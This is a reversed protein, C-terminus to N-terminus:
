GAPPGGRRGGGGRGGGRPPAEPVDNLGGGGGGRQGAGGAPLGPLFRPPHPTREGRARGHGHGGPNRRPLGPPAVGAPKPRAGGAAARAPGAEARAPQQDMMLGAGAGGLSVLVGLLFGLFFATATRSESGEHEAM